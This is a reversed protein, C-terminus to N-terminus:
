PLLKTFVLSVLLLSICSWTFLHLRKEIFNKLPLGFKWLLTALLFFRIARSIVSAMGFTAVDMQTVGSIITMVKYPFPTFGAFIVWWFGWANFAEKFAMFWIDTEGYIELITRGITEFLFLGIGYGVFGGLVSGLVAIAAFYFARHRNALIVPILVADTPIPSVSSAVFSTVALVLPAKRSGALALVYDYLKRLMKLTADSFLSPYAPKRRAPM